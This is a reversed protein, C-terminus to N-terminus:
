FTLDCGLLVGQFAPGQYSIYVERYRPILYRKLPMSQAWHKIPSQLYHMLFIVYVSFCYRDPHSSLFLVFYSGHASLLVLKALSTNSVFTEQLTWLIALPHFSLTPPLYCARRSHLPDHLWNCFLFWALARSQLNKCM